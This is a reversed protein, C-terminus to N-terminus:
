DVEEFIDKNSIIRPQLGILNMPQYLTVGEDFMVGFKVDTEPFLSVFTDLSMITKSYVVIGDKTDKIKIGDYFGISEFMQILEKYFFSGKINVLVATVEAVVNCKYDTSLKASFSFNDVTVKNTM